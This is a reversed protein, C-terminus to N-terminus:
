WSEKEHWTAKAQWAWSSQAQKLQEVESELVEIRAFAVELQSALAVASDSAAASGSATAGGGAAVVAASGWAAANSLEAGMGSAAADGIAPVSAGCGIAARIHENCAEGRCM